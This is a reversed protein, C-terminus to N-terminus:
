KMSTFILYFVIAALVLGIALPVWIPRARYLTENGIFRNWFLLELGYAGAIATVINFTSGMNASAALFFVVLTYVIGFLIVWVARGPKSTKAVNIAMIISGFLTSFLFAFLYVVRRSYFAPADPDEVLNNQDRNGFIGSYGKPQLVMERRAQMDEAVMRLEEDDFVVGRTQLEKVAAEVTEPLYKERNDISNQLEADSKKTARFDFNEDM